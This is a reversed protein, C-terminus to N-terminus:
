LRNALNDGAALTTFLTQFHAIGPNVQPQAQLAPVDSAAVRRLILMGGLVEVM